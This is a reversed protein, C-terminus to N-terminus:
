LVVDGTEQGRSMAFQGDRHYPSLFSRTRNSTPSNSRLVAGVPQSWINSVGGRTEVYTLARGDPTWQFGPEIIFPTPIDFTKLPQGGDAPIIAVRNNGYSCAILKGDPSFVPSESDDTTLQVPQGGNISVKWVSQRGSAKHVYVV